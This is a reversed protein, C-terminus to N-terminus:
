VFRDRYDVYKNLGAEMQKRMYKSLRQWYPSGILKHSSETQWEGKTKLFSEAVLSLLRKPLLAMQLQIKSSIKLVSKRM